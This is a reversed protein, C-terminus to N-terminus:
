GRSLGELSLSHMFGVVLVISQQAGAALVRGLAAGILGVIAIRPRM